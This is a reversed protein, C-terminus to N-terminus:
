VGLKSSPLKNYFVELVPTFLIDVLVMRIARAQRAIIRALMAQSLVPPVHLSIVVQLGEM